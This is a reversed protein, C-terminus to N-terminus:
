STAPSSLLAMNALLFVSKLASFWSLHMLKEQFCATVSCYFVAHPHPSKISCCKVRSSSSINRKWDPLTPVFGRCAGCQCITSIPMNVGQVGVMCQTATFGGRFRRVQMGQGTSGSLDRCQMWSQNSQIVFASNQCCISNSHIKCCFVLCCTASIECFYVETRM